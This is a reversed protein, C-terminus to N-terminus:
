MITQDLRIEFKPDSTQILSFLVLAPACGDNFLSSSINASSPLSSYAFMVTSMSVFEDSM